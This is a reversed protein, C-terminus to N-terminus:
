GRIAVDFGKEKLHLTISQLIKLNQQSVNKMMHIGDYEYIPNKNNPNNGEEIWLPIAGSVDEGHISMHQNWRSDNVSSARIASTDFYISVYYRGNTEIVKSVRLSNIFQYTRLYENPTYIYWNEMIYDYVLKEVDKGTQQLAIGIHRNLYKQLQDYTTIVPM